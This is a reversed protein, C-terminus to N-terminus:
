SGVHRLNERSLPVIMPGGTQPDEIVQCPLSFVDEVMSKQVVDAPEGSDVIAGERMVVLHDAYRVAQNLDHLVAVVTRGSERMDQCLHLVEIQHSVDLFSTPEDLLVYEADQALVMAIWARQRQGGSLGRLPEDALETVGTAAMATKVANNDGPIWQKLPTHYPHRGRAVLTRVTVGDPSVPDQPLLAIRRAIAKSRWRTLATGDLLVNGKRPRLTRAMTKVLTSKGCGNPGIIATFLGQPVEFTLDTLVARDGYAVTAGEVRLSSPPSADTSM